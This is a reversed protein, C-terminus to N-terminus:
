KEAAELSKSILLGNENVEILYVKGKLETEAEYTPRVIGSFRTIDRITGGQAHERLATQVAAPCKSLEIEEDEIVLVKEMLTGDEAVVIQYEKGKHQVTTLYITVGYKVDKAVTKIPLGFAEHRFTAQVVAPCREFAHDRDDVALNMEALTGDELVGIAYSKGALSAEAWYVTEDEEKEKHVAGIKAGKAEAEITKKVAAPCDSLKMEQGTGAPPMGLVLCLLAATVVWRPQM